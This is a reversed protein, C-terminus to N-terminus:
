ETKTASYKCKKENEYVVEQFNQTTEGTLLKNKM